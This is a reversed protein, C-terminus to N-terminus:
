LNFGVRAYSEPNVQFRRVRVAGRESGPTEVSLLTGPNTKSEADDQSKPGVQLLAGGQPARRHCVESHEGAGGPRDAASVVKVINGVPMAPM